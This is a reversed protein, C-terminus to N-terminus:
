EHEVLMALTRLSRRQDAVVNGRVVLEIAAGLMGLRTVYSYTSTAEVVGDLEEVGFTVRLARVASVGDAALTLSRGEDLEVVTWTTTATYLGSLRTREEYTAGLGLAEDARVVEMTSEVWDAYDGLRCLRAWVHSAPANVAVAATVLHETV